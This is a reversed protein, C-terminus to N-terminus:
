PHVKVTHPTDERTSRRLDYLQAVTGIKQVSPLVVVGQIELAIPRASLVIATYREM